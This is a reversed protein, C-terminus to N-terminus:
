CRRAGVRALIGGMTTGVTETVEAESSLRTRKALKAMMLRGLATKGRRTAQLCLM